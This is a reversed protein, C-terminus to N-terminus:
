GGGGGAGARLRRATGRGTERVLRPLLAEPLRRRAKCYPSTDPGCPPEGRSVLWALARAVAARCSGDASMAQWLFAWLVLAPTWVGDRWAAGEERLVRGLFEASLV